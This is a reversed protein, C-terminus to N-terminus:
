NNLLRTDNQINNFCIVLNDPVSDFMNYGWVYKKFNFNQM